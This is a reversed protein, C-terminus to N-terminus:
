RGPIPLPGGSLFSLAVLLFVVHAAGVALVAGALLALGAVPGPGAPRDPEPPPRNLILEIPPRTSFRARVRPPLDDWWGAPDGESSRNRMVM